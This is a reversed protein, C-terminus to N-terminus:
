EEITFGTRSIAHRASHHDIAKIQLIYEGGALGALSIPQEVLIGASVIPTDVALLHAETRLVVSDARLITYDVTVSPHDAAVYGTVLYLVHLTGDRHFRSDARPVVTVGGLTFPTGTDAARTVSDALVLGEIAVARPASPVHVATSAVGIAQARPDKVAIDVRYDGPPLRLEKEYSFGNALGRTYTDNGLRFEVTEAFSRVVARDPQRRVEGRVVLSAHHRQDRDDFTIAAGPIQVAVPCYAQQDATRFVPITVAIPVRRTYLEARIDQELGRAHQSRAIEDLIEAPTRYVSASLEIREFTNAGSTLSQDPGLVQGRATEAVRDTRQLGTAPDVFASGQYQLPNAPTSLRYVFALNADNPDTLLRYDGGGRDVFVFQTRGSGASAPLHEYTWIETPLEPADSLQGLAFGRSGMPNTEVFDPPGWTIYVRGRDTRWGAVGSSFKQDAEALRRYHEQYFENEPSGPTPDRRRWFEAIFAEREAATKLRLAAAREAPTILYGVDRELWTKFSRAVDPAQAGANAGILVIGLAAARVRRM